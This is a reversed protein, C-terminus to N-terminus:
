FWGGFLDHLLDALMSEKTRASDDPDLMPRTTAEVAREHSLRLAEQERARRARTLGGSEVFALVRPLEGTDFWTGHKSCVDVVVGSGAGYNKRNMLTRCVPCAVYRVQEVAPRPVPAPRVRPIDLQDHRELLDRLAAHEVFQGGCRGCDHLLGPGCDLAAMPVRCVTCELPGDRPIPELGLDRGCGSCHVADSVNM